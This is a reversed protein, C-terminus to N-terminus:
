TPLCGRMRRTGGRSLSNYLSSVVGGAAFWFSTGLNVFGGFSFAYPSPLVFADVV